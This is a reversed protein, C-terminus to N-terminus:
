RSAKFWLVFSKCDYAWGIRECVDIFTTSINLRGLESTRYDWPFVHHYNHWGEGLAALSVMGNEVSKIFKQQLRVVPDAMLDLSTKMLAARRDEVAPHPTLVLWGVHAFWFGRRIDHPDAVTETYKHHVRHDLAWTYIDR